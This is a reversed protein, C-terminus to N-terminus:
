LCAGPGDFGAAVVNAASVCPALREEEPREQNMLGTCEHTLGLSHGLEHAISSVRGELPAAAAVEIIRAHERWCGWSDIRGGCDSVPVLRIQLAGPVADTTIRLEPAYAGDTAESWLEVAQSAVDALEADVVIVMRPALAQTVEPAAPTAEPAIGACGATLALGLAALLGRTMGMQVARGRRAQLAITVKVRGGSRTGLM